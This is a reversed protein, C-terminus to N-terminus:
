ELSLPPNGVTSHGLVVVSQYKVGEQCMGSAWVRGEGREGCDVAGGKGEGRGGRVMWGVVITGEKEPMGVYGLVFPDRIKEKEGGGGKSGRKRERVRPRHFAPM